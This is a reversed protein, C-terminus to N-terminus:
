DEKRYLRGQYASRKKMTQHLANLVRRKDKSWAPSLLLEAPADGTVRHVVIDPRLHELCDILVDLYQEMRPFCCVKDPAKSYWDGLGTGKLVHLLQLKVGSVAGKQSSLGNLYSVSALMDESSEGPLGLILHVIVPIDLANLRNLAAEFCPLPYGRRILKATREHITQLGLEIWIFKHPYLAKLEELLFLVEDPLCDPRTAISIGATEPEDLAATYIERLYSVPGYTNTYAQFYAIYRINEPKKRLQNKGELFASKFAEPSDLRSAFDGSGGASCFLCGRTDLVGDRNPCTFGADLAIKYLKQGYTNKCYADLSYYPKGRWSCLVEDM